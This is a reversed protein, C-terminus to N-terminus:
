EYKLLEKNIIKDINNIEWYPIRILKINNEKCYINKVTDRIKRDIFADLGGFHKVIEFHQIGDFEILTNYQPLYFDFPLKYYFKCNDFRHQPKFKINNNNLYTTIIREGKSENCIPCGGNNNVIIDFTSDFIHGKKCQLTIPKNNGNYKSLLKFGRKEIQRTVYQIDNKMNEIMCQKCGSGSQFSDLRIEHIHGNPCMLKLKTRKNVYPTLLTYGRSEVLEKIFEQSHKKNNPKKPIRDQNERACKPCRQGKKFNNFSMLFTHGKPCKIELKKHINEYKQSVLIYGENEIYQKIFNYTLKKGM